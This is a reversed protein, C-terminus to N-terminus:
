APDAATSALERNHLNFVRRIGKFRWRKDNECVGEAIKQTEIRLDANASLFM